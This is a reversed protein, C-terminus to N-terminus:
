SVLATLPKAAMAADIQNQRKWEEVRRALEKMVAVADRVSAELRERIAEDDTQM